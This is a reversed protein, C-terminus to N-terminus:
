TLAERDARELRSAIVGALVAVDELSFFSTVDPRFLLSAEPPFEEDGRHLVVAVDVRPLVSLVFSADGLEAPEGHLARGAARLREPDSGFATALRAPGRRLYAPLYFSGGPLQQFSVREGGRPPGGPAALYRLILVREMERLQPQLELSPLAITVTEGLYPLSVGGPVPAAGCRAALDDPSRARIVAGAADSAPGFPRKGAPKGTHTM